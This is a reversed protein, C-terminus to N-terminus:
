GMVHSHPSCVNTKSTHFVMSFILIVTETNNLSHHIREKTKSYQVTYSRVTFWEDGFEKVTDHQSFGYINVQKRIPLWNLASDDSNSILDFHYSVLHIKSLHLVETHFIAVIEVRINHFFATFHQSISQFPKYLQSLKVCYSYQRDFFHAKTAEWWFGSQLGNQAWKSTMRPWWPWLNYLRFCLHRRLYLDSM